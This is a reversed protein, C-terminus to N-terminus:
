ATEDGHEPARAVSRLAAVCAAVEDASGPDLWPARGTVLAFVLPTASDTFSVAVGPADVGHTKRDLAVQDVSSITNWALRLALTQTFLGTWLELSEDSARLVTANWRMKEAQALIGGRAVSWHFNRIAIFQGPLKELSLRRMLSKTPAFQFLLALSFTTFVVVSLGIRIPLEAWLASPDEAGGLRALRVAGAVYGFSSASTVLIAVLWFVFIRQPTRWSSAGEPRGM